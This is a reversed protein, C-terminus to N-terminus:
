VVGAVVFESLPAENLTVTLLGAPLTVLLAAVSVTVDTGTAGDMVVCGALRLTADPCVAVKATVADPVAARVYWHIFFPAAIPPAVEADYVVGAVVLESLPAENLTMTLLLTPLTVLLAAVSVTVVLVRKSLVLVALRLKAPTLRPLLLLKPTVNVLAPFEFTVTELTLMAPAPNVAPPIEAPCIRAGPCLAVSLTVKVGAAATPTVPLAVTALLAVLEGAAIVREPVPTWGTECEAVNFQAALVDM